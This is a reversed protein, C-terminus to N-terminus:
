PPPASERAAAFLGRVIEEVPMEEISLDVVAGLGLLRAAVAAVRPRPVAVAVRRLDDSPRAILGDIATRLETPDPPEAFVAAIVKEPAAQEVLRALPGDFRLRGKDILLVRPCLQEIDDM